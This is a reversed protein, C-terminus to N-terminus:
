RPIAGAVRFILGTLDALWMTGDPAFTLDLPVIGTLFDEVESVNGARDFRVRAVKHGTPTTGFFNGFEAVFLDGDAGRPFNTGPNFALGDASVHLGFLASPKAQVVPAPLGESAAAPLPDCSGRSPDQTFGALGGRHRDYLCWPFGFHEVGDSATDFINLTDEGAPRAIGNYTMGDPGNMSVVMKATGPTAAPHGAPIFALDYINRFGTAVVMSPAPALNSAAPDVRLVSGSYPRTDPVGGESGFGSDTSNGNAIYLLGDPGIAMGNTNHRGNPLGGILTQRVEARGDGNVDRARYVVGQNQDGVIRSDAVFVGLETALVGLPQTLGTLFMTPKGLLLGALVPYRLVRGLESAVYLFRGDPSFALSTATPSVGALSVVYGVPVKPPLTAAKGNPGAGAPMAALLLSTGLLALKVRVTDRGDEKYPNIRVRAL